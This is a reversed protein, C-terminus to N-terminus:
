AAFARVSGSQRMALVPFLVALATASLAYLTGGEGDHIWLYNADGLAM